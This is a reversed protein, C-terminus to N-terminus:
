KLSPTQPLVRCFSLHLNLPVFLNTSGKSTSCQTKSQRKPSLWYHIRNRFCWYHIRNRFCTHVCDLKMPHCFDNASTYSPARLVRWWSKQRGSTQMRTYSLCEPPTCGVWSSAPYGWWSANTTLLKTRRQNRGLSPLIANAYAREASSSTPPLLLLASIIASETRVQSKNTLYDLTQISCM